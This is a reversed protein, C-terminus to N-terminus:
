TALKALRNLAFQWVDQFQYHDSLVLFFQRGSEVVRGALNLLQYRITKITSNRYQDPLVLRKFWAVLNFALQGILLWAWNAFYKRTPLKELGFGSECKHEKIQNEMACRKLAWRMLQKPTSRQDNTIVAHYSYYPEGKRNKLLVRKVVYRHAPHQGPAYQLESVWVQPDQNYRRWEPEPLTGIASKLSETLDATIAYTIELRELEDILDWTYFASDARLKLRKGEPVLKLVERLFFLAVGSPHRNGALLHTLLLEGEEAWFCFLPNYGIQGTYARHSGEKNTSCQEYLSTDLDLTCTESRQSPRVREAALRLLRLLDWIDGLKFKRLFEGATTPAMVSELGMLAQTGPDGRLVDLDSLHEGGLILNWCLALISESETYGRERQKVDIERDILEELGFRDIMEKILVIGAHSALTLDRFCINFKGAKGIVTTNNM